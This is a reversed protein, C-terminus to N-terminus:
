AAKRLKTNNTAKRRKLKKIIEAKYEDFYREVLERLLVDPRKTAMKALDKVQKRFGVNFSVQMSVFSKQQSPTPGHGNKRLIKEVEERVEIVSHRHGDSFEQLAEERLKKDKIRALEKFHSWQLKTESRLSLTPFKGVVWVINYLTGRSWGTITEAADYAKEDFDKEGQLLWDGIRWQSAELGKEHANLRYVLKELKKKWEIFTTEM